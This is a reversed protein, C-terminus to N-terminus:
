VCIGQKYINWLEAHIKQPVYNFSKYSWVTVTSQILGMFSVAAIKHNINKNILGLKGASILLNEIKTLYQQILRLIKRRIVIDSFQMAGMMVAFSTKRRNKALILQALLINNLSQVPDEDIIANDIAEMLTEEINNILLSLIDRKSKFHRYIAGRTTGTRKAIESLTVYEIGKTSIIRRIIDVIQQRRINTSKRIQM